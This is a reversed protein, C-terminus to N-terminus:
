HSQLYKELCDLNFFLDKAVVIPTNISQSLADLYTKNMFQIGPGSMMILDFRESKILEELKKFYPVLQKNLADQFIRAVVNNNSGNAIALFNLRSSNFSNPKESNLEEIARQILLGIGGINQNLNNVSSITSKESKTFDTAADGMHIDLIKSERLESLNIGCLLNSDLYKLDMFGDPIVMVHEFSIVVKIPKKFNWITVTHNAKGFQHYTTLKNTEYETQTLTTVLNDVKVNIIQPVVQKKRWTDRVACYGILSLLCIFATNKDQRDWADIENYNVTDLTDLAEDGVLFAGSSGPSNISVEMKNLFAKKELYSSITNANPDLMRKLDVFTLPLTSQPTVQTPFSFRESNIAIRQKDNNGDQSINYHIEKINM